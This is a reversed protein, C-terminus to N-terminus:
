KRKRFFALSDKQCVYEFGVELLAKIEEPKTAVKVTFEDNTEKFLAKDLQIYLTTNEISMHGLFEKVYLPDKTQHYLMTARWHRLTKFSIRQLRPNQLKEAIRKRTLSFARRRSAISGPFIRRNTKPLANLMAILESSVHFIRPKSRKEPKNLTITRRQFDIDTWELRNAEGPRMATEKLLQLFAATKKGCGAILDNIEKETPIFPLKRTVDCKPPDWKLGQKSLFLTYAAITTHKYAQSRKLKALYEKVSEPNFLDVNQKHLIQLIAIYTRITEPSYGEKKMWWAFEVIKGKVTAPDSKPKTQTETAGAVRKEIRSQVEALNKAGSQRRDGVQCSYLHARPTKLILTHLKQDHESHKYTNSCRNQTTESFRYGCQRCQYRQIPKDNGHLYRLGDKWIRTSSCEPCKISPQSTPTKASRLKRNNSNRQVTHPAETERHFDAKEKAM